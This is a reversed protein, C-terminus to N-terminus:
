LAKARKKNKIADEFKLVNSCLTNSAEFMEKTEANNYNYYADDTEELHGLLEAVVKASYKKRLESAVTRRIRHVSAKEIGCEEGRNFSACSISGGSQREGKENTFVFDGDRGLAKVRRLIDEIAPNLPFKRHKLNKPEGVVFEYSGDEHDIRHESFDIHIYGDHIDSWHLAALEGARMGTQMALELALDVVYNPYREEHAKIAEYFAKQQSETLIREADKKPPRVNVLALTREKDVFLFENTSIYRQRFAYEFCNKIYGFLNSTYSESLDYKEIADKFALEIQISTIAEIPTKDFETKSFCKKYDRKYRTITSQSRSKKKNKVNLFGKKYEVWEAYVEGFTLSGKLSSESIGYFNLLFVFLEKQSKKGVRKRGNPSKEDPIYTFWRLDKADKKPASIKYQHVKDLITKMLEEESSNRIDGLTITGRDIFTRLLEDTLKKM